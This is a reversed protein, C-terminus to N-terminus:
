IPAHTWLELEASKRAAIAEDQTDFKGLNIFKGHHCIRARWRGHRFDVGTVGSTNDSRRSYNEQNQKHTAVRLNDIRNDSPNHNKHDIDVFEVDGYVYVWALRNAYFVEGDVAIHVYGKAKINGAVTNPLQGGATILRVFIGTQPDYDFLERLRAQKPLPKRKLSM